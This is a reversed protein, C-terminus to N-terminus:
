SDNLFFVKLKIWSTLFLKRGLRIIFQLSRDGYAPSDIKYNKKIEFNERM